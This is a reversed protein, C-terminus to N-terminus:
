AINGLRKPVALYRKSESVEISTGLHYEDREEATVIYYEEISGLIASAGRAKRLLKEVPVLKEVILTVGNVMIQVVQQEAPADFNTIATSKRKNNKPANAM